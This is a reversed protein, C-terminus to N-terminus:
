AARRTAAAALERLLAETTPVDVCADTISQGYRLPKGPVPDQRGAV